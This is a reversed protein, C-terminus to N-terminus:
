LQLDKILRDVRKDVHDAGRMLLEILSYLVDWVLIVPFWFAIKLYRKWNLRIEGLYSKVDRWIFSEM